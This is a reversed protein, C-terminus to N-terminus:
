HIEFGAKYRVVVWLSPEADFDAWKTGSVFRALASCLRCRRFQFVDDLKEVLVQRRARHTYIVVYRLLENLCTEFSRRSISSQVNFVIYYHVHMTNITIATNLYVRFELLCILLLVKRTCM